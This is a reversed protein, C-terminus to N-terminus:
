EARPMEGRIEEGKTKTTQRLKRITVPITEKNINRGSNKGNRHCANHINIDMKDTNNGKNDNSNIKNDNNNKEKTVNNTIKTVTNNNNNRNEKIAM